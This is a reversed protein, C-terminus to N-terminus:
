RGGDKREHAIRRAERAAVEFREHNGRPVVAAHMRTGEHWILRAKGDDENNLVLRGMGGASPVAVLSYSGYDIRLLSALRDATLPSVTFTERLEGLYLVIRIEGETTTDIAHLTWENPHKEDLAAVLAKAGAARARSM